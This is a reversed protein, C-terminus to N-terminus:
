RLLQPNALNITTSSKMMKHNVLEAKNKATSHVNPSFPLAELKNAKSVNKIFVHTQEEHIQSIYETLANLWSFSNRCSYVNM